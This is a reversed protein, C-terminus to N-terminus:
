RTTAEDCSDAEAVVAPLLEAGKPVLRRRHESPLHEVLREFEELAEETPLRHAELAPV